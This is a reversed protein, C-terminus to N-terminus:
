QSWGHKTPHNAALGTSQVEAPCTDGFLLEHPEQVSQLAQLLQKRPAGPEGDRGQAGGWQLCQVEEPNFINFVGLKPAAAAEVLCWALASLLPRSCPTPSSRRAPGSSM